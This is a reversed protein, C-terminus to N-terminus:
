AAAAEVTVFADPAFPHVERPKGAVEPPKRVLLFQSSEVLKLREAVNAFAEWHVSSNAQLDEIQMVHSTVASQLGRLQNAHFDRDYGLTVLDRFQGETIEFLENVSLITRYVHYLLVLSLGGFLSLGFLLVYFQNM